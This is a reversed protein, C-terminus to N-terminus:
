RIRQSFSVGYAPPRALLVPDTSPEIGSQLNLPSFMILKQATVQDEVTKTLSITGLSVLKRDVPWVATGDNVPDGENAVQALLRFKVPGRAIRKPLEDMLYNPDAKKAEADSLAHEGAAPIIQYRAYHSV